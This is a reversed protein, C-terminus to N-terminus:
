LQMLHGQGLSAGVMIELDFQSNAHVFRLVHFVRPLLYEALPATKDQKQTGRNRQKEM